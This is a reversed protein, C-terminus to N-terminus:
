REGKLYALLDAFEQRNVQTEINQPMLSLKSAVLEEIDSRLVTEIKGQPQKLTVSTATESAVLGTLVRGDKTSLVYAAFGPTIEQEPIVIHLLIAEKPQNRIGFLDPGVPSGEQDLRHCNACVRKFVTRGNSPNAPLEVVSKMEDYVKARNGAAELSFLKNARDRISADKNAKLQNRRLSDVAGRPVIGKEIATLLGPIHHPGSLMASMVEDRLGPTYAAFRDASLLSPAISDDRMRSLARLAAAQLISPQHPDVLGLLVDGATAFDSHALLDVAIKRREPSADDDRAVTASAAYRANLAAVIEDSKGAAELLASGDRGVGRNRLAEGFGALLVAQRDTTAADTRTDELILKLLAPWENSPQSAGVLRATDYLIEASSEATLSHSLLEKFFATERGAISSLVAARTWRDKSDAAAITGLTEVARAGEVGGLALAAQFRVRPSQSEGLRGLAWGIEESLPQRTEAIRIATEIWNAPGVAGIIEALRKDEVVGFADLLRLAAIRTTSSNSAATLATIAPVAAQDRRELFLRFATSRRWGSPSDLAQALSEPSAADFRKGRRAALEDKDFKTGVVRWVRGMTKGSEFDTHKRIEVPLYDPHEITKRYMDVVYLAGDPGHALFVPRFWTDPTALFEVKDRVRRAAFTAGNNELRDFHVLNGTPDCSFAGSQYDLPLADGRWVTVGCAATFTGAHSDATTINRSLPYLKAAAGHGRLPESELDAPCNEVTESFPLNPNRKLQKSSLVVHQVQVRNYCIFRRGADDFSLGFQAGGDCAEYESLDPRFRFDTRGIVVPAREPHKPCRIEGGTLGSTVYIWGDINLTPHSVRLQTSGKTSFGTFWVDRVDARGDGDTDKLYLIDPACTVILGGDWPMVGNPFTLGDAFITRKEFRGDGDVDQLLAIRGVPPEGEKPGTPYGPNEAVFMRGLEDFAVACPSIVEPEGAVLEIRLGPELRFAELAAATTLPGDITPAEPPSKSDEAIALASLWSLLIGIVTPSALLRSFSMM